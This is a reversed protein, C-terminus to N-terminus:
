INFFLLLNHIINLLMLLKGNITIQDGCKFDFSRDIGGCFRNVGYCVM